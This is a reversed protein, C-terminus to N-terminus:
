SQSATSATGHSSKEPGFERSIPFNVPFKAREAPAVPSLDWGSLAKAPFVLNELGIPVPFSGPIFLSDSNGSVPDKYLFVPMLSTIATCIRSCSPTSPQLDVPTSVGSQM